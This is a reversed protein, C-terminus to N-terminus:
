ASAGSRHASLWLHMTAYARWPRWREARALIAASTTPLGLEAMGARVGLDRAPFADPNRLARMSIYAVTWPGIGPIALLAAAVARPDGRGSLDVTGDAITEALRRLTASRSRTLGLDELGASAVQSATPFLHTVPGARRDADLASGARRVLRGAFTRAARVSVQQGLLARVALEFGDVAGPLRMGPNASVLPRLAPDKALVADITRPDADLDLLRRSVRAIGDRDSARDVATELEISAHTGHLSVIAPHGDGTRVSRTLTPGDAAEVGPIARDGLFRFLPGTALPPTYPLDIGQSTGGAGRGM